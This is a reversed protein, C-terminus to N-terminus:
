ATDAHRGVALEYWSAAPPPRFYLRSGNNRESVIMYVSTKDHDGLRHGTVVHLKVFLASYTTM